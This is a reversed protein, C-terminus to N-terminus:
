HKGVRMEWIKFGIESPFEDNYYLAKCFEVSKKMIEANDFAFLSEFINQKLVFNIFDSANPHVKNKQTMEILGIVGKLKKEFFPCLIM